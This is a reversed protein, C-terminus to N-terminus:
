RAIIRQVLAPLMRVGHSPVGLLDAEAMVDAEIASVQSLVGADTLAKAIIGVLQAHQIRFKKAM